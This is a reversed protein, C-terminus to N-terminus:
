VLHPLVKRELIRVLEPDMFQYEDPIDLCIVRARKLHRRFGKQLKSRHMPQMVFIIDAWEVVEGSLPEDADHDTGASATEIGPIKAFVHEATPSRLRNRSCVFLVNKL